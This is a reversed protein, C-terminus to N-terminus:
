RLRRGTIKTASKQLPNRAVTVRTAHGVVTETNAHRHHANEYVVGKGYLYRFGGKGLRDYVSAVMDGRLQDVTIQLILKPSETPSNQGNVSEAILLLLVALLMALSRLHVTESKM